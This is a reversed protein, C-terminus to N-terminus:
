KDTEQPKQHKSPRESEKSERTSGMDEQIESPEDHDKYKTGMTRWIKSKRRKAHDPTRTDADGKGAM